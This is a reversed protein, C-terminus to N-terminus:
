VSRAFPLATLSGAAPRMVDRKISGYDLRLKRHSEQPQERLYQVM